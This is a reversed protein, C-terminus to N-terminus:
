DNEDMKLCLDDTVTNSLTCPYNNGQLASLHAPLLFRLEGVPTILSVRKGLCFLIEMLTVLVQTILRKESVNLNLETNSVHLSINKFFMFFYRYSRCKDPVAAFGVCIDFIM